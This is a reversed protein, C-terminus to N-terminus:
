SQEKFYEELIGRERMTCFNNIPCNNCKRKACGNSGLLWLARDVTLWNLGGERCICSWVNQIVRTFKRANRESYEESYVIKTYFAIKVDHIDVPPLVDNINEVEALGLDIMCRFIMGGTKGGLGRFQTIKKFIEKANRSGKFINRPDGQYLQLLIVSNKYWRKAAESPFRVGLYKRLLNALEHLNTENFTSSVYSPDFLEPRNKFMMKARTYLLESKMLYDLPAIYFLFLVHERSLPKVDEPIQHEILNRTDAFIKVGNTFANELIRAIEIGREVDVYVSIKGVSLKIM